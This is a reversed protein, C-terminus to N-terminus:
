CVYVYTYAYVGVIMCMSSPTIYKVNRLFQVM